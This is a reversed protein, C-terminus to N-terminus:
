ALIEYKKKWEDMNISQGNNLRSDEAALAMYHSELSKDISTLGCGPEKEQLIDDLLEEVMRFDGGGHGSFDTALTRVDIVEPEKGFECVRIWNEDMDAGIDGMTGMIKMTRGGTSTFASMTFNITVGDDLLANVVQHDVVDNDSHYVCRGYDGTKLAETINEVTPYSNLINVPWKDRGKLLRDKIYFTEANYPCTDKVKCDGLCRLAAGEPAKEPRFLFLNGFSSVYRCKKGTLWLLIDMDHCCKALIMPSSTEKKKWNGRVFSHAQHWYQVNEMAQVTVIEGIRGSDIQRKIEQYFPTYRLVHCVQVHKRYKHAAAAINACEQASPSVPKELLLHYGKKLALMAHSYHMKDPTCIFAVDALRDKELLEEASKFCNEEPIGYKEAVDKRKSEVPDAIAVIQMKDPFRNVYKSYTDKGRGGLGVVAVKVPGKM